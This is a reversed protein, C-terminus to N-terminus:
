NAKATREVSEQEEDCLYNSFCLQAMSEEFYCQVCCRRKKQATFADEKNVEIMDIKSVIEGSDYKIFFREEDQLVTIGYNEFITNM